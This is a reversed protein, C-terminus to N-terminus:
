TLPKRFILFECPVALKPALHAAVQDFQASRVVRYGLRDYWNRLRAKAPHVGTKPVLLELQMTNVGRARMLEEAAHVLEGGVGRGWEDPDTSILGLDATRPDLRRVSACGVLRDDLTAALMGGSRVASAIEDPGVRSTGDLWLGDEGVAYAANIIRVLDDVLVEDHATLVRVDATM